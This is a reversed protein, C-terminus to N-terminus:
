GEGQLVRRFSYHANAFVAYLLLGPALAGLVPQLLLVVVILALLALALVSFYWRRVSLYLAAKATARLSATEFVSLGVVTTVATTVALLAVVLLTPGLLVAWATGSVIAGDYLVFGVVLVTAAGVLAAQAGRRRYGRWFAAFPRPQGEGMTRYVEFAGALSPAVTLSLLLLLPWAQLLDRAVLMMVALPLNALVLLVDVMLIAYAYGFITDLTEHRMRLLGRPARATTQSM